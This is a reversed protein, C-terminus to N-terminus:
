LNGIKSVEAVVKHMKFMLKWVAFCQEPEVFSFNIMIQFSRSCVSTNQEVISDPTKLVPINLILSQRFM